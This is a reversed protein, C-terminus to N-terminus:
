LTEGGFHWFYATGALRRSCGVEPVRFQPLGEGLLSCSDVVVFGCAPTELNLKKVYGKTVWMVLIGYIWIWETAQVKKSHSRPLFVLIRNSDQTASPELRAPRFVYMICFKVCLCLSLALATAVSCWVRSSAIGPNSMNSYSHKPLRYVRLYIVLTRCVNVPVGLDLSLRHHKNVQWLCLLNM